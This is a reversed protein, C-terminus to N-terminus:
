GHRVGQALPLVGEIVGDREAYLFFAAHGFTGTVITQWGSRHFFTAETCATVFEDWRATQARDKSDLRRVVLGPHAAATEGIGNGVAESM